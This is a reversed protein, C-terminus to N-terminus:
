DLPKVDVYVYGIMDKRGRTTVYTFTVDFEGRNGWEDCGRITLKQSAGTTCKYEEVKGGYQDRMQRLLSFLRDNRDKVPSGFDIAGPYIQCSSTQVDRIAYLLDKYASM